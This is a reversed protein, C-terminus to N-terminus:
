DGVVGCPKGVLKKLMGETTSEMPERMEEMRPAMVDMKLPMIPRKWFAREAMMPINVVRRLATPM